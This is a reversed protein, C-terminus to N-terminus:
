TYQAFVANELSQLDIYPHSDTFLCKTSHLQAYYCASYAEHSGAKGRHITTADEQSCSTLAKIGAAAAVNEPPNSVYIFTYRLSANLDAYILYDWTTLILVSGEVVNDRVFWQATALSSVVCNQNVTCRAKVLSTIVLCLLEVHM